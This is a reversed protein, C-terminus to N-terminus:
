IVALDNLQKGRYFKVHALELLERDDPTDGYAYIQDFQSLDYHDKVRRAKEVGVCQRGHYRGTFFEGDRQLVSCFLELEHQACWPRLYLDFSASVVVVQDGADIHAQLKQWIDPRILAPINVRAFQEAIVEVAACRARYFAIWAVLNRGTIGSLWGVRYAIILPWTLILALILRWRPSAMAVFIPYADRYTITGDFDFLALNRREKSKEISTRM